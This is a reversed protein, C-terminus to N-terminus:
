PNSPPKHKADLRKSARKESVSPSIKSLALEFHSTKITSPTADSSSQTSRLKEDLAAMAAEHMLAALDAGSLNECAKMEAIVSLDVSADIPKKRALAKLILGREAPGPLPVYLLKGFRGPRLVARDMVEPRNTAGIVFIGRREDVSDLETLFQNLLREVVWGGEKGRQTTLADVEDFFLICPSCTRARSFLTRVALESEGVYKNLLEPGKIHIFNVGSENAIAKAILTKGCGPPGYLLFGTEMDLGFEECLEPYKIRRVISRDFEERLLDLGGVDEWKVNPITSFGERKSSPQVMKIAAEFDAMTISLKELEEPLWSKKWWEESNEEDISDKFILSKREDIIRKMALNGAKNALAALDAGVFGATSRAIKPLDFSGELRLNRTIVVLIEARAKEDPVVLAIEKDFRGPRRLAPDVADPRNTAGIVLVYGPSHDSSESNSNAGTPHVLRHSEDMCTMLQTVIRREMERQLNERKSAIADIEDIFVISPATRHAKLFLERVNEESAGSVGSVVETASINYFPLGTENAIAHALKTKGCGPPGHLLIGAMPRVGLWRPLQPNYLPVIVEMKLQDLVGNLGGLDKFKPGQNGRADFVAESNSPSGKAKRKTEAPLRGQGGDGNVMDIRDRGPLELEVNKEENEQAAKPPTVGNSETYRARLMSKTLDFEPQVKERYVADESTSVAGDGDGDGDDDSDESSSASSRSEDSTSLCEQDSRQIRRLHVKEIHQLREESEDVARKLKKRSGRRGVGDDDDADFVIPSPTKTRKVVNTRRPLSDLTQQVLRTLVHLKVHHYDRYNTRLHRVTEDITSSDRQKFSELRRRLTDSLSRNRGGGGGGLRKGTKM